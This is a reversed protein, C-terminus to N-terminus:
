TSPLAGSTIRDPVLEKLEYPGPLNPFWDPPWYLFDFFAEGRCTSARWIQSSHGNAAISSSVTQQIQFPCNDGLRQRILGLGIERTSLTKSEEAFLSVASVYSVGHVTLRASPTAPPTRTSACSALLLILSSAVLTKMHGLAQTLPVGAHLTAHHM